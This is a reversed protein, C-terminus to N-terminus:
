AKLATVRNRGENKSAYLQKDAAEFFQVATRYEPTWSAVGFSATVAIKTDSFEFPHSEIARRIREAVGVAIDLKADALIVLFEEGGWRGFVDGSRLVKENVLRASEKLVYDGAMHGHVDNVRKFHDLDFLVVSLPFGGKAVEISSALSSMLHSKNCVGTLEDTSSKTHLSETFSTELQNESYRLVCTGIKILDNQQLQRPHEIRDRNVMTGNTSGLDEILVSRGERHVQAHRGSVGRLPLVIANDPARGIQSIGEKFRFVSGLMESQVVIFAPEHAQAKDLLEHDSGGPGVVESMRTTTLGENWNGTAKADKEDPPM